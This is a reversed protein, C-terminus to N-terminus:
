RKRKSIFEYNFVEEQYLLQIIPPNKLDMETWLLSTCYNCVSSNCLNRSLLSISLNASPVPIARLLYSCATFGDTWLHHRLRDTRVMNM